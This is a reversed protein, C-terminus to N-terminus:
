FLCSNVYDDYTKKWKAHAASTQSSEVLFLLESKRRKVDARFKFDIITELYEVAKDSEGSRVFDIISEITSVKVSINDSSCPLFSAM